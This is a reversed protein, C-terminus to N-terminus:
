ERAAGVGVEALFARWGAELADADGFYRSPDNAGEERAARAFRWFAEPDRRLLYHVLLNAFGYAAINGSGRFAATGLGMVRELSPAEVLGAVMRAWKAVLGEASPRDPDATEVFTALGENLWLPMRSAFRGGGHAILLHAVEHRIGRAGDGAGLVLVIHSEALDFYGGSHSYDDGSRDSAYREFEAHTEFLTLRYGREPPSLDGLHASWARDVRGMFATAESTMEEALGRRGPPHFVEFPGQRFTEYGDPLESLHTWAALRPLLLVVGVVAAIPLAGWAVLRAREGSSMESWRPHTM